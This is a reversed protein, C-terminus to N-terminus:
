IKVKKLDIYSYENRAKHLLLDVTVFSSDVRKALDAIEEGQYFRIRIVEQSEEILEIKDFEPLLENYEKSLDRIM